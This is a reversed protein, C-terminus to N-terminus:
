DGYTVQVFRVGAECLRRALLCQRGFNETEPADIGYLAQTVKSEGAIDLVDPAHNQMRWALEYSAIVAELESDGPHARMQEANMGRLLEFQHQRASPSRSPNRLNRITAQAVPTGAKGIATGQYVAPLFASGYNRPGGNGASPSISVFAPLNA